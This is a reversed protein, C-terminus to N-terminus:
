LRKEIEEVLSKSITSPSYNEIIFRRAIKGKEIAQCPRELMAIIAKVMAQCDNLPTLIGRENDRGILEAPGTPCDTSCVPLGTAMAEILANPSGEFDSTFVFLHARMLADLVDSTFGMLKIYNRANLSDILTQLNDKEEGQGYIDLSINSYHSHVEAVAKILMTQNKQKNLRGCSILKTIHESYVRQGGAQIFKMDVANNVAFAKKQLRKSFFTGQSETQLYLAPCFSFVFNRIANNLKEKENPKNRCTAIIPVNLGITAFWTEKVMTDLFPICYDPKFSKIAQRIKKIRKFARCISSGQTESYRHSLTYKCILEHVYYDHRSPKYVFIGIDHGDKVLANSLVSVAREAGGGCLSYTVFLIRSM